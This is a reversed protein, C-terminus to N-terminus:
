HLEMKSNRKKSEALLKAILKLRKFNGEAFPNDYDEIRDVAEPDSFVENIISLQSSVKQKLSSVQAKEESVIQLQIAIDSEIKKLNKWEEMSLSEPKSNTIELGNLLNELYGLIQKSKQQLQESKVITKSISSIIESDHEHVWEPTPKDNYKDFKEFKVLSLILETLCLNYKLKQIKERQMKDLAHYEEFEDINKEHEGLQSLKSYLVNFCINRYYKSFEAWYEDPMNQPKIKQETVYLNDSFVFMNNLMKNLYIENIKEKWRDWNVQLVHAPKKLSLLSHDNNTQCSKNLEKNILEELETSIREVIRGWEENSIESPKEYNLIKYEFSEELNRSYRSSRSIHMIADNRFKKWLQYNLYFPKKKLLIDEFPSRKVRGELWAVGSLWLNLFIASLMAIISMANFISFKKETASFTEEAIGKEHSISLHSLNIGPSPTKLVIRFTSSPPLSEYVIELKKQMKFEKVNDTNSHKILVFENVSANIKIVIKKIIADGNNNVVIQQIREDTKSNIFNNPIPESLSYKLSIKDTFLELGLYGTVLFICVASVIGLVFKKM